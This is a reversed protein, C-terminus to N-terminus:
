GGAARVALGAASGPHLYHAALPECTLPQERRVRLESRAHSLEQTLQKYYNIIIWTIISNLTNFLAGDVGKVKNKLLEEEEIM